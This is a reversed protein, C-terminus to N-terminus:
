LIGLSASKQLIEATWPYPLSILRHELPLLQPSIACKLVHSLPKSPVPFIRSTDINTHPGCCRYPQHNCDTEGELTVLITVSVGPPESRRERVGADTLPAGM